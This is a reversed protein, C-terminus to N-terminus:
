SYTLTQRDPWAQALTTHGLQETASDFLVTARNQRRILWGGSVDNWGLYFYTADTDDMMDAPPLFSTLSGVPTVEKPRVVVTPSTVGQVSVGPQIIQGITAHVNQSQVGTVAVPSSVVPRLVIKQSVSPM